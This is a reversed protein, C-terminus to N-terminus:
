HARIRVPPIMGGSSGLKLWLIWVKPAVKGRLQYKLIGTTLPITLFISEIVSLGLPYIGADLTNVSRYKFWQFQLESKGDYHFSTLIKMM